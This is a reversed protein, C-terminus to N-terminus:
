RNRQLEIGKIALTTGDSQYIRFDLHETESELTFSTEAKGDGDVVASSLITFGEAPDNIGAQLQAPADQPMQLCTADLTIRYEGAALTEDPGLVAYGAGGTTLIGAADQTGLGADLQGPTIKYMLNTLFIHHPPPINIYQRKDQALAEVRDTLWEMEAPDESNAHSLLETGQGPELVVKRLYDGGDLYLPMPATVPANSRFVFTSYMPTYWAPANSVVLQAAPTITTWGGMPVDTWGNLGVVAATGAASVALAATGMRRWRCKAAGGIKVAVAVILVPIVMINYRAIGAMGCNINAMLSCGLLMATMALLMAFYRWDRKFAVVVALVLGVALLIPFYPLLGFNWDTFYAWLQRFVTMDSLSVWEGGYSATLNIAGVLAYNYVFPVLGPLYCCGYLIIEKWRGFFAKIKGGRPGQRFLKILYEAIMVLGMALACPNMTGAVAICLAARHKRNTAWCLASLAVFFFQAVEASPWAFYGIAPSVAFLACLLWKQPLKLRPDKYIILLLLLVLGLNTLCFAYSMPQAFLRLLVMAPVCLAPYTPFYWPIIEGAATYYHSGDFTAYYQTWDPFWKQALAIDQQSIFANHDHVLSVATLTYSGGEGQYVTGTIVTLVTMWVAYAVLAYKLLKQWNIRKTDIRM